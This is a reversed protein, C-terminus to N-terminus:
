STLVNSVKLVDAFVGGATVEPGAGPGRVILPNTLYRATTFIVMNDGGTLGGFPSTKTVEQLKIECKGNKIRGLYRLVKGRKQAAASRGAFSVNVQPLKRFFDAVSSAKWLAAHLLPEITVDALNVRHGMLRALIVLKRAVDMGSLDDRPDPETYRMEHARHVIDSFLLGKELESFVYGLTGSLLADIEIVTDGSHILDTLTSIIPLGAGVCAEFYYYSNRRGVEKQLEDYFKLDLTNAKKNPTVISFGDRLFSPYCRAIREDATADVVIVNELRSETLARAMGEPTPRKRSHALSEQWHALDIGEPEFLLHKRDAIGVVALRLHLDRELREQGDAIQKILTAGIAGKGIVAVHVNRKALHFASHIVGLAKVHDAASLVLSINQESSGQAVAIVNIRNNGLASFLRAGIGPTGRMGAGVIAVLAIEDNVTISRIERRRLENEFAAGIAKRARASDNRPVVICISQESSGQSILTVNIRERALADFLRASIGVVGVMGAGEISLLSMDPISSIGKVPQEPVHDPVECSIVTGPFADNFLNKMRLPIGAEIAPIVARPHLVKAGFYAMEMAESYTLHTLPFADRVLRPDASLVGDTDGVIEIESVSLLSGVIAATYDSGNRGVTTPIGEATAAVFGTIVPVRGKWTRRIRTLKARTAALDVNAAGFQDDTVIFARADAMFAPVRRALCLAAILTASLLEGYGAVRDRARPSSEELQSIGELLDGLELMLTHISAATPRAAREPVLTSLIDLHLSEIAALEQRWELSRRRIADEVMRLLRSTVGQLASVVVVIPGRRQAGRIYDVALLCSAADKLVSGGFKLTRM